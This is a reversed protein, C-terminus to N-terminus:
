TLLKKIQVEKFHPVKVLFDDVNCAYCYGRRVERKKWKIYKIKDSVDECIIYDKEIEEITIHVNNACVIAIGSNEKSNILIKYFLKPVPIQKNDMDLYIDEQLGKSNNM